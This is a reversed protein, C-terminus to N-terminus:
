SALHELCEEFYRSKYKVSLFFHMCTQFLLLTLLHHSINRHVISDKIYLIYIICISVRVEPIDVADEEQLPEM